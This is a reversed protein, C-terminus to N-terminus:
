ATSARRTLEVVQGSTRELDGQLGASRESEHGLLARDEAIQQQAEALRTEQEHVSEDLRALTQELELLQRETGQAQDHEQQLDRRMNELAATVEALRKALGDYEQLGLGVRLEKLRESHEQYRQ